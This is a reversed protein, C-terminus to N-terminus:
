HRVCNRGEKKARYLQADAAAILSQPTAEPNNMALGISITIGPLPSGDASNIKKKEATQRIREAAVMGEDETTNPLIVLFEEGGYRTAFDYPRVSTKLVDGMAMLAQDGGLHGHTDNYKKFHDVDILLVCLPHGGKSLLRPLANDLLRRNYLRTLADVNAHDTLEWIQTRDKVIRQTNAKMWQTMMRLLNGAVPSTDAVLSHLMDRHIPFVRSTEKAIVYASPPTGDIISMEGVSIGKTLTRIEPSDPSDFHVGLSGALLLYVHHNDREPSLLIEGAALEQPASQTLALQIIAEPVDRFLETQALEEAIPDM